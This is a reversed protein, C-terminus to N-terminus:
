YEISVFHTCSVKKWTGEKTQKGKANVAFTGARVEDIFEQVDVRLNPNKGDDGIGRNLENQGYKCNADGKTRARWRSKLRQRVVDPIDSTISALQQLLLLTADEFFDDNTEGPVQHLIEREKKGCASFIDGVNQINWSSKIAEIANRRATTIPKLM